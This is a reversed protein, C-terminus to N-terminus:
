AAKKPKDITPADAPAKGVSPALPPSRLEALDGESGGWPRTQARSRRLEHLQELTMGWKRESLRRLRDRRIVERLAGHVTDTTNATGLIERAQAVLETDLNITTRRVMACGQM